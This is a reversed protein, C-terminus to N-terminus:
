TLQEEEYYKQCLQMCFFVLATNLIYCRYDKFSQGMFSYTNGRFILSVCWKIVKFFPAPPHSPIPSDKRKPQIQCKLIVHSHGTELSHYKQFPFTTYQQQKSSDRFSFKCLVANYLFLFLILLLYPLLPPHHAGTKSFPFPLQGDSCAM